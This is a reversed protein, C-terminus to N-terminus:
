WMHLAMEIQVCKPTVIFVESVRSGFWGYKNMCLKLLQCNNPIFLFTAIYISNSYLIDLVIGFIQKSINM